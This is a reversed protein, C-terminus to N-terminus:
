LLVQLTNFPDGIVRPRGWPGVGALPEVSLYISVIGLRRSGCRSTTRHARAGQPKSLLELFGLEAAKGARPEAAEGARPEAAGRRRSARTASDRSRGVSRVMSRLLAM